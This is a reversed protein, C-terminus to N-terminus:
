DTWPNIVRLGPHDFHTTNRTAIDFRYFAAISAIQLDATSSSQGRKVSGAAFRAFHYSCNDDFPLVRGILLSKFLTKYHQNLELHRKGAPMSELGFLIEAKSIATCYVDEKPQSNVWTIVSQDPERRTLESIVNTDLIVM